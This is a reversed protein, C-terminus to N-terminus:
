DIRPAEITRGGQRHIAKTVKGKADKAFTVEADALRWIFETESKPLIELKPQGTLQAFLHDGERTVTMIAKKAGYDYRGAYADLIKPGVKAIPFDKLRPAPLLMGGQKLTAKTARGKEDKSFNVEAEVVKWFFETESSAFIEFEPQGTLQAFLRDGERRVALVLGGLDYRGVIADSAKSSVPVVKRAVRAPLKDGLYVEVIQHALGAPTVGPLGPQCNTLVVVTLKEKPLRMLYTAFGNLGGGHGIEELGQTRQISWGYGYGEQKAKGAPEEATKVPTFAKKLTEPKLVKGGFVGENWRYLDGVTSYLAGAGGARSMDWNLAKSLKGGIMSYGAAEHKLIATAEHVGTDNMGLPEFFTKRLYEGYPQGSVREVLYGLLFFGSNNYKWQKGPDFDYSDGQISRVLDEPKIPATVSPLFEAKETYSHIGSTHTLLHHITVIDGRPFDPIFKSVKDDLSLKGEEVLKLIAAATFQKTISGIRFKTDPTVPVCHEINALGYGKEFVIKGNEAVLVAAGPGDPKLVKATAADIRQQPTRAAKAQAVTVNKGAPEGGHLPRSIVVLAIACAAVAVTAQPRSSRRRIEIMM